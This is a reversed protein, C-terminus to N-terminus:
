QGLFKLFFPCSKRICESYVCEEWGEEDDDDEGMAQAAKNARELETRADELEIKAISSIRKLEDEDLDYKVPQQM